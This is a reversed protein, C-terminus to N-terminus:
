VTIVTELDGGPKEELPLRKLDKRAPGSLWKGSLDFTSGHCPCKFRDLAADFNVICGLHPCRASLAYYGDNSSLLYVGEKFNVAAGQSEPQFVIRKTSVKRFSIFSFVPLGIGAAALVYGTWLAGKKIFKRRDFM